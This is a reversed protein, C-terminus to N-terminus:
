SLWQRVYEALPLVYDPRLPYKGDPGREQLLVAAVISQFDAAVTPESAERLLRRAAASKGSGAPGSILVNAM